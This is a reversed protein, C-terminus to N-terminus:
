FEVIGLLCKNGMDKLESVVKLGYDDLAEIEGVDAMPLLTSKSLNIVMGSCQGFTSIVEMAKPLSHTADALFLLGDAAYLAIKKWQTVGKLDLLIM